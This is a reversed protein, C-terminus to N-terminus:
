IPLQLTCLAIEGRGSVGDIKHTVFRQRRDRNEFFSFPTRTTELDLYNRENMPRFSGCRTHTFCCFFDCWSTWHLRSKSWSCLVLLIFDLCICWYYDFRIYKVYVDFCFALHSRGLLLRRVCLPQRLISSTVSWLVRQLFIIISTWIFLKFMISASDKSPFWPPPTPVSSTGRIYGRQCANYLRARSRTRTGIM